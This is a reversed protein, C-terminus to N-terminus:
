MIRHTKFNKILNVIRSNLVHVYHMSAVRLRLREWRVAVGIYMCWRKGVVKECEHRNTTRQSRCPAIQQLRTSIYNSVIVGMGLGTLLWYHLLLIYSDRRIGHSNVHGTKHPGTLTIATSNMDTVTTNLGCSPMECAKVKDEPKKM